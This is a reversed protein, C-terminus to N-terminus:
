SLQALLSFLQGPEVPVAVASRLNRKRRKVVTSQAAFAAAPDSERVGTSGEVHRARDHQGRSKLRYLRDGFQRAVCASRGSDVKIM